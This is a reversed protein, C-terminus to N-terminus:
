CFSVIGCEICWVHGSDQLEVMGGRGSGSHWGQHWCQTGQDSQHHLMVHWVSVFPHARQFYCVSSQRQSHVTILACQTATVHDRCCMTHCDCSGQLVDHPLWMIGAACRTATVHDRCCMMHCDCSGQLVDHPLWMIGAACRTVTVHDRCCMVHCDCSGQLVDHSLWM